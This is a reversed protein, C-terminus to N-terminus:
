KVKRTQAWKQLLISLHWNYLGNIWKLIKRGIYFSKFIYWPFIQNQKMEMTQTWNLRLVSFLQNQFDSLYQLIKDFFFHRWIQNHGMSLHRIKNWKWQKPEFKTMFTLLKSKPFWWFVRCKKQCFYIHHWIQIHGM